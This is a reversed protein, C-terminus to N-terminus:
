KWTRKKTKGGSLVAAAVRAPPGRSGQRSRLARVVSRMASVYWTSPAASFAAEVVAGAAPAVGAAAAAAAASVCLRSTCCRVACLKSTSIQFASEAMCTPATSTGRSCRTRWPRGTVLTSPSYGARSGMVPSARPKSRRSKTQLPRSGACPGSGAAGRCCSAATGCCSTPPPASRRRPRELCLALASSSTPPAASAPESFSGSASLFRWRSFCRFRMRFTSSRSRKECCVASRDAASSTRCSWFFASTARRISRKLVFWTVM